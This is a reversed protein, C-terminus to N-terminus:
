KLQFRLGELAAKIEPATASELKPMRKMLARALEPKKKEVAYAAGSILPLAQATDLEGGQEAVAGLLALAGAEDGADDFVQLLMPLNRVGWGTSVWVAAQQRIEEGTLLGRARVAQMPNMAGELGAKAVTKGSLVLGVIKGREELARAKTNKADGVCLNFLLERVEGVEIRRKAALDLFRKMEPRNVAEDEKGNMALILERMLWPATVGTFASAEFDYAEALAEAAEALPLLEAAQRGRMFHHAVKMLQLGMGHLNDARKKKDKGFAAAVKKVLAKWPGADGKEHLAAVAEATLYRFESSTYRSAKVLKELRADPREGSRNAAWDALAAVAGPSSELHQYLHRIEAPHAAGLVAAEKAVTALREEWPPSEGDGVGPLHSFRPATAVAVRAVLASLPTRFSPLAKEMAAADEFRYRHQLGRSFDGGDCGDVIREAIVSAQKGFGHRVLLMVAGVNKEFEGGFEAIWRNVEKEDGLLLTMELGAVLPAKMPWYGRGRSRSEDDDACRQHFAALYRRAMGKWAETKADLRNFAHVTDQWALATIPWREDLSECALEMARMVLEESGRLHGGHRAVFAALACRVLPNVAEDNIWGLVREREKEMGKPWDADRPQPEGAYGNVSSLALAVELAEALPEMAANKRMAEGTREVLWPPVRMLLDYYAIVAMGASGRKLTPLFPAALAAVAEPDGPAGWGGAKGYAQELAAGWGYAFHWTMHGYVRQEPRTFLELLLEICGPHTPGRHDIVVASSSVASETLLRSGDGDSAVKELLASAQNYGNSTTGGRWDGKEQREQILKVAREVQEAAAAPDKGALRRALDRVQDAFTSENMGLEEFSRATALRKMKENALMELSEFFPKLPGELRSREAGGLKDFSPQYIGNLVSAIVLRKEQPLKGFAAAYPRLDNWQGSNLSSRAGQLVLRAGFTKRKELELRLQKASADDGRLYGAVERCVTKQGGEGQPMPDL